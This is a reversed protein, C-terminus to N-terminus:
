LNDIMFLVTSKNLSTMFEEKLTREIDDLVEKQVADMRLIRFIVETTLSDPLQTMIKSAQESKLRSLVLAITQPYENKLFNALIDPTINGLKDWITRGTPGRIEDMITTAKEKPIAKTLLRETSEVSGILGGTGSIQDIFEMFMHEIVSSNVKGLKAMAQSIEYIEVEDMLAFLNTAQEEAIALMMIAAKEVGLLKSYDDHIKM